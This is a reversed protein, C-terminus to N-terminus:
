TTGTLGNLYHCCKRKDCEDSLSGVCSYVFVCNVLLLLLYIVIQIKYKKNKKQNPSPNM